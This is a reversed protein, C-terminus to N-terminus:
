DPEPDPAAQSVRRLMHKYLLYALEDASSCLVDDWRYDRSLDVKLRDHTLAAGAQPHDGASHTTVTVGTATVHLVSFAGADSTLRVACAAGAEPRMRERQLRSSGAILSDIARCLAQLREDPRESM